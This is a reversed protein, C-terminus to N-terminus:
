FHLKKGLKFKILLVFISCISFIYIPFAINAFNYDKLTLITIIAAIGAFLFAQYNETEPFKYSKILTPVAALGDALIAFLIAINGIQTIAWLMLALLSLVGCGLDFNTIKWESKKNLFSAGFIVLPSLGVTLTMLSSLGVGQTIQAAFAIIPALGWLFWTVKNPKTKGKLTDILYSLSGFLNLAVALFVFKEDIM